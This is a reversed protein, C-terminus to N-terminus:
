TTLFDNLNMIREGKGNIQCITKKFEKRWLCKSLSEISLMLAISQLISSSLRSSEDGVSEIGGAGVGGGNGGSENSFLYSLNTLLNDKKEKM